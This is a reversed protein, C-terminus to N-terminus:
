KRRGNRMLDSIVIGLLIVAMVGSCAAMSWMIGILVYYFAIM